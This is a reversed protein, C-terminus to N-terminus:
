SMSAAGPTAPPYRSRAPAVIGGSSSSSSSAMAPEVGSRLGSVQEGDVEAGEIEVEVDIRLM